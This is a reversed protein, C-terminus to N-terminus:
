VAINAKIHPHARYGTLKIDEFQFEFLSQVAPNLEVQPPPLPEREVQISAQQLHNTYLHAD